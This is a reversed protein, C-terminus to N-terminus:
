KSILPESYVLVIQVPNNATQIPDYGRIVTRKGSARRANILVLTGDDYNQRLLKQLHQTIRMRYTSSASHYTGDFGNTYMDMMDSVYSSATDGYNRFAILSEPRNLDAKDLAVPLRLEAYHIIAFPHAEHFAKVAQDFNLKIKTGGMPELYLYRAGDIAARKDTNFVALPGVYRHSFHNFHTADAGIAFADELHSTDSGQRYTRYVTLKTSAGAFNVTMLCPANNHNVRIYLGKLAALFQDDTYEKGELQSNLGNGLKLRVMTDSVRFRANGSYLVNSSVAVSDFGFYASDSQITDALQRVEFDMAYVYADAHGTRFPFSPQNDFRNGRPYFDTVALSLVVSDITSGQYSIGSGSTCRIQTFISADVDGFVNDSYYGLLGQSYSATLLSDENLTEATCYLTDCVGHYLTAMDQLDMGIESEQDNCSSLWLLSSLALTWLLIKKM